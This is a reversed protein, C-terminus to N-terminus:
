ILLRLTSFRYLIVDHAREQMSHKSDHVYLM